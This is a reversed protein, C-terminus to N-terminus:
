HTRRFGNRVFEALGNLIGIAATGQSDQAGAVRCIIHLRRLDDAHVVRQFSGAPSDALIIKDVAIFIVYVVNSMRGHDTRFISNASRGAIHQFVDNDDPVVAASGAPGIVANNETGGIDAAIRIVYGGVHDYDAAVGVYPVMATVLGAAAIDGDAVASENLVVHVLAATDSQPLLSMNSIHGSGRFHCQPHSLDAPGGIGVSGTYRIIGRLDGASHSDPFIGKGTRAAQHYPGM